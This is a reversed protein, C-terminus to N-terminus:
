AVRNNWDWMTMHDILTNDVQPPIVTLNRIRHGVTARAESVAVLEAVLGDSDSAVPLLIEVSDLSPCLVIPPIPQPTLVLCVTPVFGSSLTLNELNEMGVLLNRISSIRPKLPSPFTLTDTGTISLRTIGNHSLARLSCVAAQFIALDRPDYNTPFLGGSSFPAFHFSVEFRSTEGHHLRISFITTFPYKEVHLEMAHVKSSHLFSEWTLPFPQTALNGFTTAPHASVSIDEAVPCILKGILQLHSDGSTGASIWLRRLDQLLVPLSSTEDATLHDFDFLVDKLGPSIRLLELVKAQSISSACFLSLITLSPFRFRDLITSVDRRLTLEQLASARSFLLHTPAAHNWSELTVNLSLVHLHSVSDSTLQSVSVLQDWGLDLWLTDYEKQYLPVIAVFRDYDGENVRLQIPASGSRELSLTLLQAPLDM